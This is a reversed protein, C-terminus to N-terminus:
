VRYLAVTQGGCKNRYLSHTMLDYHQVVSSEEKCFKMILSSPAIGSPAIDANSNVFLLGDCSRTTVIITKLASVTLHCRNSNMDRAKIILIERPKGM